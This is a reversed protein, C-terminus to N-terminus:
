HLYSTLVSNDFSITVLYRISHGACRSSHREHPLVRHVNLSGDSATTAARHRNLPVTVATTSPVTAAAASAHPPLLWPARLRHLRLWSCILEKHKSEFIYNLILYRFHLYIKCGWDHCHKLSVLFYINAFSCINRKVPKLTVLVIYCFIISLFVYVFM